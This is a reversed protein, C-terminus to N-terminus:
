ATHIALTPGYDDAGDNFEVVFEKEHFQLRASCKWSNAMRRALQVLAENEIESRPSFFDWLHVHNVMAEVSKRDGGLREIWVDVGSADFAFGLFVCDRYEVFEPSVLMAVSYAEAISVSSLMFTRLDFNGVEAVWARVEPLDNLEM